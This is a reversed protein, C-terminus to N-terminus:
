KNRFLDSLVIERILSRVGYGGARTQALIKAIQPRDSFQIPAGTAYVILQQTLNRALQQDDALLLTKLEAVNRFQRGDPLEGSPDVEPGLSFHYKLGNHGIGQVPNAQGFCRYRERWGGMVDFAELAFGAPDINKHCAACSEQSRHKALQERITTAGRIDPELAPVNPPPPPPPKGLLRTMIWAGRKVPSTTTGNATVKLVSAQTLLGGRVSGPQLPTPRLRVGTVNEIGYHTALRQNLMAFDSSVLNTVGLDLQILRAFFEQTEGIMSEVLLDDLQYDPYLELDPATGEILRLDLWYNLFADIFRRSKPDSLMRETQASLVGTRHLKGRAALNRLEEDPPSNWLFYSLRSALAWDDLRGPSEQTYLFAPSCLVGTYAAIMSDTFSHGAGLAAQFIGAFIQLDADTAPRRYAKSVFRRILRQSDNKPDSSIVEVGPGANGGGPAVRNKMQLEGFLLQHGVPPWQEILPGEVDMWGFAVGPMGDPGALPNKHDPPRSRFLRAADPRITEGAMLWVELERVTPEPNVDFSGLKRLLRPPTDAYITVPEPQRGESVLDYKPGMWISYACFRLRYRATMPARFRGFRIETPEYTSVVVAMSEQDRRGPEPPGPRKPHAMAMLDRQLELGVLPFTRRNEPGELKIAGFFEGQDWTYFRNTTTLPREAQSALAQRLAYEGAALYRGMQVHSVDLAQGVKNFGFAESDEPLFSKVELYPLSLLDRLTDEYEYRNLRRETARGETAVRRQDANLLCRGLSNTFAGLDRATPRPKKKPPMEGNAVRDQVRVWRNFDQTNDLDFKLSALDLGGKASDSDHCEYCHKELFGRLPKPQAAVEAAFSRTSACLSLVLGAVSLWQLRSMFHAFRAGAPARSHQPALYRMM